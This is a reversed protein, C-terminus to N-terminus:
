DFTVFGGNSRLEVRRSAMIGACIRYVQPREGESDKDIEPTLSTM